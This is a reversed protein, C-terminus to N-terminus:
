VGLVHRVATRASWIVHGDHLVMAYCNPNMPDDSPDRRWVYIRTSTPHNILEFVDVAIERLVNGQDRMTVPATDVHVSEVGYANFILRKLEEIYKM